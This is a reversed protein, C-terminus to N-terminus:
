WIDDYFSIHVTEFFFELFPGHEVCIQKVKGKYIYPLYNEFGFFFCLLIFGM